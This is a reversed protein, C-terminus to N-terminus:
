LAQIIPEGGLLPTVHSVFEKFHDSSNHSDVAQQDVFEEYFIFDSDSIAKYLQYKECGQEHNSKKVMVESHKLFEDACEKRVSIQTIIKKM